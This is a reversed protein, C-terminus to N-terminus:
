ATAPALERVAEVVLEPRVHHLMHGVGEVENLRANPMLRALLRGQREHQVVKDATGALIRAPTRLEAVDITGAPAFPIISSTDEGEKVMADRDLIMDYPFSAKWAPDIPQPSFMLKQVAELLPRDFTAEALGSFLPGTVPVSRPAFLGHELTRWEPFAIPAVLVLGSVFDPFLEACALSVLGGFSHSVLTASDIGLADLGARIQRAQDRPTGELRPRRSLGHGPRDIATVRFGERVLADFPGTLWDHSTAVAGHILVLDPGEGEM